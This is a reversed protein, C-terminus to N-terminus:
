TYQLQGTGLAAEVIQGFEAAPGAVPAEIDDELLVVM